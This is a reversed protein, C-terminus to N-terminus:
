QHLTTVLQGWQAAAKLFQRQVRRCAAWLSSIAVIRIFAHVVSAASPLSRGLAFKRRAFAARNRNLSLKRHSTTLVLASPQQQQSRRSLRIFIMLTELTTWSMWLRRRHRTSNRTRTSSLLQHVCQHQHRLGITTARRSKHRWLTIQSMRLRMPHHRRLQFCMRFQNSQRNPMSQLASILHFQWKRKHWLRTQQDTNSFAKQISYIENNFFTRHIIILERKTSRRKEMSVRSKRGSVNLMGSNNLSPRHKKWKQNAATSPKPDLLDDGSQTLSLDSLFSGTSNIENCVEEEIHRHHSKRKKTYSSLVQLHKRTEDRM